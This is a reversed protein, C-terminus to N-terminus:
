PAKLTLAECVSVDDCVDLILGRMM